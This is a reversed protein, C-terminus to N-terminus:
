YFVLYRIEDGETEKILMLWDVEGKEAVYVERHISQQMPSNKKIAADAHEVMVSYEAPRLVEPSYVRINNRPCRNILSLVTILAANSRLVQSGVQEFLSKKEYDTGHKLTSVFDALKRM